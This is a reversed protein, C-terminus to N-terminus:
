IKQSCDLLKQFSIVYSEAEKQWEFRPLQYIANLISEVMLDSLYQESMGQFAMLGPPLDVLRYKLVQGLLIKMSHITSQNIDRNRNQFEEFIRQFREQYRENEVILEGLSLNIEEPNVRPITLRTFNTYNERQNILELKWYNRKWSRTLSNNLLDDNILKTLNKSQDCNCRIRWYENDFLQNYTSCTMLLNIIDIWECKWSILKWVILTNEDM